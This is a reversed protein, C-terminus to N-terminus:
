AALAVPRFGNGDFLYAAIRGGQGTILWIFDTEGAGARDRASPEARGDPHSHYCGVIQAGAGRAARLIRFQDAPDIEFRDTDSSLNRTPHLATALIRDGDRRGEILGCCEGPYAAGAEGALQTRLAAPLVFVTM